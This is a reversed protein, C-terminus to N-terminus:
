FGIRKLDDALKTKIEGEDGWISMSRYKEVDYAQRFAERIDAQAMGTKIYLYRQLLADGLTWGKIAKVIQKFQPNKDRDGEDNYKAPLSKLTSIAASYDKAPAEKKEKKTTKKSAAPTAAKKEVAPKPNNNSKKAIAAAAAKKSLESM